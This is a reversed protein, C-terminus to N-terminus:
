IRYQNMVFYLYAIRTNHGPLIGSIICAQPMLCMASKFPLNAHPICHIFVSCITCSHDIRNIKRGSRDQMCFVSDVSNDSLSAEPDSIISGVEIKIHMHRDFLVEGVHHRVTVSGNGCLHQTIGIRLIHILLSHFVEQVFCLIHSLVGPFLIEHRYVIVECLVVCGINDHLEHFSDRELLIQLFVPLQVHIIHHRDNDRDHSCQLLDVILPHDM